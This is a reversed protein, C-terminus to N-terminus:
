VFRFIKVNKAWIQGFLIYLQFNMFSISSYSDADELYWAHLKWNFHVVKVTKAWIQWFLFYPNSIWFVLTPILILMRSIGHTGIKLSFSCNQIKPSVNAWFHIKPESNWFDLEPNPILVELLYYYFQPWWALKLSKIKKKRYSKVLIFICWFANFFM